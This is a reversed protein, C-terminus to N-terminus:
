KANEKSIMVSFLCPFCGISWQQWFKLKYAGCPWLNMQLKIFKCLLISFTVLYPLIIRNFISCILLLFNFSFFMISQKRVNVTIFIFAAIFTVWVYFAIVLDKLGERVPSLFINHCQTHQGFSKVPRWQFLVYDTFTPLDLKVM